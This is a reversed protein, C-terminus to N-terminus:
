AGKGLNKRFINGGKPCVHRGESLSNRHPCLHNRSTKVM